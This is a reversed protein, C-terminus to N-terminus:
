EGREQGESLAANIVLHGDVSSHMFEGGGKKKPLILHLLLFGLYYLFINRLMKQLLYVIM